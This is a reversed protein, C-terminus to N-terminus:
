TLSLVIAAALLMAAACATVLLHRRLRQRAFAAERWRGGARFQGEAPPKGEGWTLRTFVDFKSALEPAEGRLEGELCDLRRREYPFLDV